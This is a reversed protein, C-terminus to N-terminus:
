KLVVLRSASRRGAAELRAWYTGSAVRHGNEDAGDWVVEHAGASLEGTALTRIRRGSVDFIALDVPGEASLTYRLTTRPRFPNPMGAELRTAVVPLVGGPEIGTLDGDCPDVCLTPIDDVGYIWEVAARIENSVAEVRSAYDISCGGNTDQGALYYWSAGDLVTRFNYPSVGENVIQAFGTEMGNTENVYVRNGVGSGFPSFVGFRHPDPCGNGFAGYSYTGGSHDTGYAEGGGSPAELRVCFNEDGSLGRYDDSVLEAGMENNFMSVGSWYGGSIARPGSFILGRRDTGCVGATLYDSFLEFDDPFFEGYQGTHVWVGRYGLLQLVTMGNTNRPDLTRNLPATGCLCPARYDFQDCEIGAMAFADQALTRARRLTEIELFCPYKWVGGDDRWGPLIEFDDFYGGSTDPLLYSQTPESLYNASIFYEVQTGPFLVDDALIENADSLEPFSPDFDDDDERFYSCFRNRFASTGQQASDMYAWTFEVPNGSGALSPDIAHGDAVRDRWTTYRADAGPGVRPLRFWLRAEWRTEESSVVPGGIALSDALILPVTNGFNLNRSVDARGPMHPDNVVTNQAFGDQFNTGVDWVVAPANPTVTFRIEINDILPTTNTIQTCQDPPIGFVDCSAYVEYVFRVQEADMPVPVDTSTGSARYWDCTPDEGVFFYTNQGVRPSWGSEGTLDCVWPYYMWGPRYFVGNARPMVSYQDWDAFIQLNGEAPLLPRVDSEVDVPPTVVMANQGYPHEGNDDHMELVNGSLGCDCADEIVYGSLAAVGVLSGVGPCASATWGELDSEFAYQGLVSGGVETVVVDDLAMPGYSTEFLGDEDSWANDSTMEFVIRFETAGLFDDSTLTISETAGVPPDVPHNGALGIEGTYQVIEFREGDSVREFFCTVYDFNPETDNFHVWSFDVDSSAGRSLVPSHLEQCWYNGYGIGGGWCLARAESAFAGIYASGSGRLVPAAVDNLPDADWGAGDVHRGWVNSQSTLDTATIGEFPDAGGHDFTWVEGLVAFGDGDVYGFGLTDGAARGLASSGNVFGGVDRPDSSSDWIPASTTELTARGLADGGLSTLVAGALLALILPSSTRRFALRSASIQFRPHSSAPRPM